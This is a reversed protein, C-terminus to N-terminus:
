RESWVLAAEFDLQMVHLANQIRAPEDSDDDAVVIADTMTHNIISCLM